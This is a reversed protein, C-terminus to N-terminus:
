PPATEIPPKYPRGDLLTLLGFSSKKVPAPDALTRLPKAVDRPSGGGARGEDGPFRAAAAARGGRAEHM